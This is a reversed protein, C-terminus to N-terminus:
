ACIDAAMEECLFFRLLVNERAGVVVDMSHFVSDDAQRHRKWCTSRIGRAEFPRLNDYLCGIHARTHM